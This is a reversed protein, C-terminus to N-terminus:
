AVLAEALSSVITVLSDLRTVEFIRRLNEPCIIVIQTRGRVAKQAGVLAALGSSDMFPVGDMDVILRPKRDQVAEDLAIRFSRATKLDIEGHIVVLQTEEDVSEEVARFSETSLVPFTCTTSTTYSV